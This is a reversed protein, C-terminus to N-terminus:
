PPPAGDFLAGCLARGEETLTASGTGDDRVVTVTLGAADLQTLTRRLSSMPTQARKSLKALSWPKGAPEAAAEHLCALLASLAPDLAAEEGGNPETAPNM